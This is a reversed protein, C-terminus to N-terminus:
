EIKSSGNNEDDERSERWCRDVTARTVEWAFGRRQLLGALRARFKQQDLQALTRMRGTAVRYAAEDDALGEVASAATAQDVGSARLEQAMLRQSRPALRDRVETMYRAYDTDNLLREKKLRDITEDVLALDLKKQQLRRRVDQESRPRRALMAVATELAERRLDEAVLAVVGGAGLDSGIHLAQRKATARSIDCAVVGDVYVDLRSRRRSNRELATVIM